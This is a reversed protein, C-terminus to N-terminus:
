LIAPLATGTAINASPSSCRVWMLQTWQKLVLVLVYTVVCNLPLFDHMGADWAREGLRVHESYKRTYQCSAVHNHSAQGYKKKTKTVEM